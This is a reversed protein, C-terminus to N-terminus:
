WSVLHFQQNWRDPAGPRFGHHMWWGRGSRWGPEWGDRHWSLASQERCGFTGSFQAVATSSWQLQPIKQGPAWDSSDLDSKVPSGKPLSNSCFFGCCQVLLEGCINLSCSLTCFSWPKQIKKFVIGSNLCSFHFSVGLRVNCQAIIERPWVVGPVLHGSPHPKSCGPITSFTWPWPLPNSFFSRWLGKWGLANESENEFEIVM